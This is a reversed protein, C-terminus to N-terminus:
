DVLNKAEESCNFCEQIWPLALLHCLRPKGTSEAAHFWQWSPGVKSNGGGSGTGARSRESLSFM